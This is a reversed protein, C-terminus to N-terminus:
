SDLLCLGQATLYERLENESVNGFGRFTRLHQWTCALLDEMTRISQRLLCNTLRVSFGCEQIPKGASAPTQVPKATEIKKSADQTIEEDPCYLVLNEPRRLILLAKKQYGLVRSESMGIKRGAQRPTFHYKYRYRIANQEGFPLESITTELRDVQETSLELDCYKGIIDSILNKPYPLQSSSARQGHVGEKNSTAMTNSYFRM